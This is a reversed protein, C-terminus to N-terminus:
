GRKILRIADVIGQNYNNFYIKRDVDTIGNAIVPQVKPKEKRKRFPNMM